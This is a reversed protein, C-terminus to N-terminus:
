ATLTNRIVAAFGDVDQETTDWGCM